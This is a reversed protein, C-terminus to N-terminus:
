LSDDLKEVIFIKQLRTAIFMLLFKSLRVVVVVGMVLLVVM